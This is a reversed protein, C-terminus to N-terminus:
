PVAPEPPEEVAPVENSEGGHEAGPEACSSIRWRGDEKILEVLGDEVDLLVPQEGSSSTSVM